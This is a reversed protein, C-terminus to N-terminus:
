LGPSVPGNVLQICWSQKGQRGEPYVVLGTAGVEAKGSRLRAFALARAIADDYTAGGFFITGRRAGVDDATTLLHEIDYIRFEWVSEIGPAPDADEIANREERSLGDRKDVDVEDPCSCTVEVGNGHEIRAARYAAQLDPFGEHLTEVARMGPARVTLVYTPPKM